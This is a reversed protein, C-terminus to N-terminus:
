HSCVQCKGIGPTPICKWIVQNISTHTHTRAHTRTHSTCFNHMIVKVFICAIITTSIATANRVVALCANLLLLKCVINAAHLHYSGSIVYMSYCCYAFCACLLLMVYVRYNYCSHAIFHACYYCYAIVFMCYCCFAIDLM